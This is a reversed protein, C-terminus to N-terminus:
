KTEGIRKLLLDLKKEIRILRNISGLKGHDRNLAERALKNGPKIGNSTQSSSM